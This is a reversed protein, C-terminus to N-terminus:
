RLFQRGEEFAGALSGGSAPPLPSKYPCGGDFSRRIHHMYAHNRWVASPLDGRRVNGLPSDSIKGQWVMKRAVCPWISGNIDVYLGLIQTCIGGGYYAYHPPRAVAYRQDIVRLEHDLQAREQPGPPALLQAVRSQDPPDLFQVAAFGQFTGDETRGTPIYDAAIPFINNRRAWDHITSVETINGHFVITDIGLRTPLCAAFGRDLLLEFAQDRKATYGTRGAVLDQVEARFSNWKLVVSVRHMYLFDVLEPSSALAIGNTFIVTTLGLGSIHEIVARLHPDITPEGAGVINITEAGASALDDIVFLTEDLTLENPKRIKRASNKEEIFCYPCNLNCANSLDISPNLMSGQQLAACIKTRTFDWGAIANCANLDTVSSLSMSNM